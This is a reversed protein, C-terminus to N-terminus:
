VDWREPIIISDENISKEVDYLTGRRSSEKWGMTGMIFAMSSHTSTKVTEVRGDEALAAETAAILEVVYRIKDKKPADDLKIKLNTLVAQSIPSSFHGDIYAAYQNEPTYLISSLPGSSEESMTVFSRYDKYRVEYVRSNNPVFAHNYMKM